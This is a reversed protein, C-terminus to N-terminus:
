AKYKQLLAEKLVELQAIDDFGEDPQYVLGVAYRTVAALMLHLTTSFMKKEPIDTRITHDQVGKEYIIHFQKELGDIVNAYPQMSRDDFEEARIYVNFLQNFCLLDKHGRYLELFSDLYFEFVEKATMGEFDVKPRRKRNEEFYATWKWVTVAMVLGAKSDFYHLLTRKGCGAEEAIDTLRVATIGKESFLRYATSLMKERRMKMQGHDAEPARM